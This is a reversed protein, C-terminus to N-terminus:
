QFVEVSDGVTTLQGKLLSVLDRPRKRPHPTGNRPRNTHHPDSKVELNGSNWKKIDSWASEKPVATRNDFM